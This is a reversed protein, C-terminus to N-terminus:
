DYGGTGGRRVGVWDFGLGVLWGVERPQVASNAPQRGTLSHYIHIRGGQGASLLGGVHLAAVSWCVAGLEAEGSWPLGRVAHRLLAETFEPQGFQMTAFSWLVNAVEQVLRAAAEFLINKLKFNNREIGAVRAANLRLVAVREGGGACPM